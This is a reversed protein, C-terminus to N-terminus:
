TGLAERLFHAATRVVRRAPGLRPAMQLHGHILGPEVDLRFRVQAAALRGALALTDDLLVDLGTAHLFLPPLGGLDAEGPVAGFPPRADNPGLYGQWYQEMRAQSLGFQGDGFRRYSATEYDRAYCGYFLAAGALPPLAAERRLLLASLGLAAGASDGALAIAPKRLGPCQGTEAAHIADLVDDCPAPFPHEPALRYDISLVHADTEAALLRALHEHSAPSGFRWGGGHVYIVLGSAGTSPRHFRAAIDSGDRRPLTLDCSELMQPASANWPRWRAEYAARGEEVPLAMLDVAPTTNEATAKAMEPHLLSM